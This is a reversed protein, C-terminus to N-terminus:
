TGRRLWSFRGEAQRDMEIWGCRSLLSERAGRRALSAAEEEGAVLLATSLAEAGSATPAVVFCARRGSAARGTLPNWTGESESSEGNSSGTLPVTSSLSLGEDELDVVSPSRGPIPIAVSWKGLALISSTGAHLIAETVGFSRLLEGAKDLAYGKAYGGFDLQVSRDRLRVTRKLRDLIIPADGLPSRSAYAIDFRGGSWERWSECASLVEMVEVDVRVPGIGGERCIRSIESTPDFRSFLGEIRAVEELAAEAIPSLRDHEAPSDDDGRLAAEVLCGM